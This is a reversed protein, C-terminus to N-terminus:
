KVILEICPGNVTKSALLDMTELVCMIIPCLCSHSFKPWFLILCGGCSNMTELM